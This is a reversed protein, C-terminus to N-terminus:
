KYLYIILCICIFTFAGIIYEKRIKLKESLKLPRPKYLAIYDDLAEFLTVEEKDLMRNIRNHIFHMWRIFSDRNVLYPTVPYHDLMNSFKNGIKENPIFLPM